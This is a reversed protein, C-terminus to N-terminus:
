GEPVEGVHHLLHVLAAPHSTARASLVTRTLMTPSAFDSVFAASLASPAKLPIPLVATFTPAMTPPAKATLAM